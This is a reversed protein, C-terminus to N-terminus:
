LSSSTGVVMNVYSCCAGVIKAVMNLKKLGFGRVIIIKPVNRAIAAM